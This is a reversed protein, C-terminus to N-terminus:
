TDLRYEIKAGDQEFEGRVWLNERDYWISGALYPTIFSYRSANVQHGAVVIQEDARKRASVGIVGGHCADVVTTQELVAPTWLSNSTLTTAPAIFPGGKSVVRFGQPTATGEVHLTEGHEVTESGLTMLRGARWTEESRHNFRFVTFFAVKVLLRIETNVRTEGTATSYTVTHTGIKSGEYLVSFRRNGSAAPLVIATTAHVLRPFACGVAGAWGALLLTRRPVSL